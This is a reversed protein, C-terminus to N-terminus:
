AAGGLTAGGPWGGAAGGPWGGAGAGAGAGAGWGTGGDVGGGGGVVGAEYSASAPAFVSDPERTTVQLPQEPVFFTPLTPRPLPDNCNLPTRAFASPVAVM